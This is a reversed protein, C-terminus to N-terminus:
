VKELDCEDLNKIKGHYTERYEYLTKIPVGMITKFIRTVNCLLVGMKPHYRSELKTKRKIRIM